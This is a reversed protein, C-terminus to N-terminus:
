SNSSARIASKSAAELWYCYTGRGEWTLLCRDIQPMKQLFALANADRPGEGKLRIKHTEALRDSVVKSAGERKGDHCEIILDAHVLRAIEPHMMFDVEGGEIDMLVLPQEYEGCLEIMDDPTCTGRLDLRELVGNLDALRRADAWMDQNTEFGILVATPHRVGLGALYYGEAAGINIIADYPTDGWGQIIRHM